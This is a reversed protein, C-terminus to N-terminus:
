ATSYGLLSTGCPMPICRKEDVGAGTCLQKLKEWIRRRDLPLGRCSRFICGSSIKEGRAFTLLERCLGGGLPIQRVKGKLHIVAMGQRASEVTLFKMESVRVGTCAMTRLLLATQHDGSSEAYGLLARYDEETLEMERFIRQQCRLSKLKLEPVGCFALFGNVAAIMANVTAISHSELIQGKWGLLLDGCLPREQLYAALNGVARAYQEATGQSRERKLLDERYVEIREVTVVVGTEM